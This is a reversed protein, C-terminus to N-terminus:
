KLYQEFFPKDSLKTDKLHRGFPEEPVDVPKLGSRSEFRYILGVYDKQPLNWGNVVLLLLGPFSPYHQVHMEIAGEGVEERHCCGYYFPYDASTVHRNSAIMEEIDSPVMPVCSVGEHSKSSYPTCPLGTKELIASFTKKDMQGEYSYAAQVVGFLVGDREEFWNQTHM